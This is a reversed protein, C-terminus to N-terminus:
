KRREKVSRYESDENEYGVGIYMPEQEGMIVSWNENTKSRCYGRIWIGNHKKYAPVYIQGMDLCKQYDLEEDFQMIRQRSDEVRQKPDKYEKKSVM